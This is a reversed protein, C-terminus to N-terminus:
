QYEGTLLKLRAQTKILEIKHRKSDINAQTLQNQESIYDTSSIVGEELQKSAERAIEKRLRVIQEDKQILSKIMELQNNESDIQTQLQLTFENQIAGTRKKQIELVEKQIGSQNWDWLTWEAQVGLMAYTTFDTEFVNIGPRGYTGQAFAFVKPFYGTSSLQQQRRLLDTQANFLAYEPRQRTNTFYAKESLEPKQFTTKGPIELGTLTALSQITSNREVALELIKQETKYIEALIGDATGKRLLGYKVKSNISKNKEELDSKLVNLAELQNNFLLIRFYINQVAFKQNLLEKTTQWTSVEKEAIAIDKGASVAGGDYILQELNLNFQYNDKPFETNTMGPLGSFPLEIVQTQYTAKGSLTLKPLYKGTLKKETLEAQMSAHGYNEVLPYNKEIAEYCENLTLQQGFLNGSGVVVFYLLLLTARKM